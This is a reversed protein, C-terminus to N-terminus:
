SSKRRDFSSREKRDPKKFAFSTKSQLPLTFNQPAISKSPSLVKAVKLEEKLSPKTRDPSEINSNCEM